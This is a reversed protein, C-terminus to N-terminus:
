GGTVKGRPYPVSRGNVVEGNWHWDHPGLSATTGDALDPPLADADAYDPGAEVLLVSRDPDETLRAALVAGASGAGVILTDYHAPTPPEPIPHACHVLKNSKDITRNNSQPRSLHLHMCGAPVPGAVVRTPGGSNCRSPSNGSIATA